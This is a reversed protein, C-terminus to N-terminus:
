YAASLLHEPFPCAGLPLPYFFEAAAVASNDQHHQAFGVPIRVAGALRAIQVPQAKDPIM